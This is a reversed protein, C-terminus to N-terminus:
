WDIQWYSTEPGLRSGGQCETQGACVGSVAFNEPRPLIAVTKMYHRGAAKVKYGGDQQHPGDSGQQRSERTYACQKMALCIDAVCAVLGATRACQDSREVGRPDLPGESIARDTSRGMRESKCRVRHHSGSNTVVSIQCQVPGSTPDVTENGGSMVADAYGQDWLEKLRAVNSENWSM